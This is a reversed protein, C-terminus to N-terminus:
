RLPALVKLVDDVDLQLAELLRKLLRSSPHKKGSEISCVHHSVTNVIKALEVKTLNLEKRIKELKKGIIM